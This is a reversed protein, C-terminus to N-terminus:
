YRTLRGTRREEELRRMTNVRSVASLTTKGSKRQENFRIYDIARWRKLMGVATVRSIGNELMLEPVIQGHAKRMAATIQDFPRAPRYSPITITTQTSSASPAPAASRKLRDIEQLLDSRERKAAGLAEYVEGTLANRKAHVVTGDNRIYSGYGEAGPPVTLTQIPRTPNPDFVGTDAILLLLPGLTIVGPIVALFYLQATLLAIFTLFCTGAMLVCQSFQTATLRGRLGVGKAEKSLKVTPTPDREMMTDIFARSPTVEAAKRWAHLLLGVGLGVCVGEIM